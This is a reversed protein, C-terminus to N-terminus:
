GIVPGGLDAAPSLKRAPPTKVKEKKILAKQSISKM